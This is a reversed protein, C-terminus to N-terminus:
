SSRSYHAVEDLRHSGIRVAKEIPFVFLEGDGNRGSMSSEAIAAVAQDVQQDTVVLEIKINPLFDVLHENGRYFEIHDDHRGYAKVESVTMRKIGVESLAKKVERIRSPTIMAEIKKM